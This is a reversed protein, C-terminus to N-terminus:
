GSEPDHGLFITSKLGERDMMVKVPMLDTDSKACGRWHHKIVVVVQIPNSAKNCICTLPKVKKVAKNIIPRVIANETSSRTQPQRGTTLLTM